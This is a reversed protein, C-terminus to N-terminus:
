EMSRPFLEAIDREEISNIKAHEVKDNNLIRIMKLSKTETKNIM